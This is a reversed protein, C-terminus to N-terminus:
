ALVGPQGDGPSAPGLLLHGPELVPGARGMRMTPSLTVPLPSM